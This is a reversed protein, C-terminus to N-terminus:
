RRDDLIVQSTSRGTATVRRMKKLPKRSPLRLYGQAVLKALRAERSVVQPASQIPQILAIPKGRDTVVVEGGQKAMRLYTTLRSKLEKISVTYRYEGSM